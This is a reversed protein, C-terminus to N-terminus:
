IELEAGFRPDYINYKWQWFDRDDILSKRKCSGALFAAVYM